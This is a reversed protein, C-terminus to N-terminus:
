NKWVNEKLIEDLIALAAVAEVVVVARTVFCVDHRGVAKLKENQMTSLNVSDQSIGITPTPHFAAKFEVPNGGLKGFTMYIREVSKVRTSELISSGTSTWHNKETSKVEVGYLSAAVIDPFSSGSVLQITNEFETGKSCEKLAECVDVELKQALHTKFENGKKQAESNLLRDTKEMLMKFSHIEPKPNEAVIM